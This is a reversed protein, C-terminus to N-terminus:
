AILKKMRTRFGKRCGTLYGIHCGFIKKERVIFMAKDWGLIYSLCYPLSWSVIIIMVAIFSLKDPASICM